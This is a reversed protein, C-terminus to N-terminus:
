ASYYCSKFPQTVQKQNIREGMTANCIKDGVSYGLISTAVFGLASVLSLGFKLYKNPCKAIYNDFDKMFKMEKLVNKYFGEALFMSSLSTTQRVGEDVKDDATITKYAGSLCILPNTYKAAGNFVKGGFKLAENTEAAKSFVSIVNKAWNGVANDYKAIQRFLNTAQSAAVPARGVNDGSVTKETNRLCFISTVLLNQM